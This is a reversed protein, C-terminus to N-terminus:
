RAQRVFAVFADYERIYDAADYHHSAFVMLVAESSYRHQVAWTTPPLHLGLSLHNLMVERRNDGDDVIVACQGRVCILFQHCERHAHEGRIELSPVDFVMFYRKPMFPIQREFEGVSLNGRADIIVPLRHYTVEGVGVPVGEPTPTLATEVTPM